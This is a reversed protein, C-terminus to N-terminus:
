TINFTQLKILKLVKEKLFNGIVEVFTKKENYTMHKAESLM